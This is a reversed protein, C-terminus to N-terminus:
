WEIHGGVRGGLYVNMPVSSILIFLGGPRLVRYVEMCTDYVDDSGGCSLADLTGKDVVVDFYDDEFTMDRCDEVEWTMGKCNSSRNRMSKTITRSIDINIAKEYGDYYMDESLNSSGTGLHLVRDTTEILSKMHPKLAEWRLYWEFISCHGSDSRETYRQEWYDTTAYHHVPEKDGM